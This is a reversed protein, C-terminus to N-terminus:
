AHGAEGDIQDYGESPMFAAHPDSDPEDTIGLVSEIRDVWIDMMEPRYDPYFWRRREAQFERLVQAVAGRRTMRVDDM